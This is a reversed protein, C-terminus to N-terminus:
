NAASHDTKDSSLKFFITLYNFFASLLIATTVILLGNGIPDPLEPFVMFVIGTVILSVTSAKGLFVSPRMTSNRKYYILGGILQLLEKVLLLLAIWWPVIRKAAICGFVTVTMMKDALPDLIKGLETIIHYKRAIYGDLFDTLGALLYIAAAIFMANEMDSFFVAAYIPVLIIRIISLANPLNM